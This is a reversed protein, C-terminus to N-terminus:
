YFSRSAKELFGDLITVNQGEDVDGFVSSLKQVVKRTKWVELCKM